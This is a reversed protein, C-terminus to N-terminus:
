LPFSNDTFFLFILPLPIEIIFRLSHYLSEKSKKDTKKSIFGLLLVIPIRKKKLFLNQRSFMSHTSFLMFQFNLDCVCLSAISFETFKARAKLIVSKHFVIRLWKVKPSRLEILLSERLISYKDPTTSVSPAHCSASVYM